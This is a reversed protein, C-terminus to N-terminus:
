EKDYECDPQMETSFFCESFLCHMTHCFNDLLSKPSAYRWRSEPVRDLDETLHDWTDQISEPLEQQFVQARPFRCIHWYSVAKFTLQLTHVCGYSASRVTNDYAYSLYILSATNLFCKSALTEMHTVTIFDYARLCSTWISFKVWKCKTPFFCTSKM